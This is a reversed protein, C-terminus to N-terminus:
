ETPFGTKGEFLKQAFWSLARIGYIPQPWEAPQDVGPMFCASIADALSDFAAEFDTMDADEGIGAAAAQLARLAVRLREINAPFMDPVFQWELGDGADITYPSFDLGASMFEASLQEQRKREAAASPKRDQPKKAPVAPTKKAVAASAAKQPETM